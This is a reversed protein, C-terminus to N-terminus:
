AGQLKVHEILLIMAIKLLITESSGEVDGWCGKTAGRTNMAGGEIM